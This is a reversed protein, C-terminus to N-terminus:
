LCGLIIPTLAGLLAAIAMVGGLRVYSWEGSSLPYVIEPRHENRCRRWIYLATNGSPLIERRTLIGGRHCKTEGIM